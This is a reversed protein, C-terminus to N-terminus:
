CSQQSFARNITKEIANRKKPYSNAVVQNNWKEEFNEKFFKIMNRDNTWLACSLGSETVREMVIYLEENDFIQYSMPIKKYVLKAAFDGTKPKIKELIRKVVNEDNPKEIVIRIRADRKGLVRLNERLNEQMRTLLESTTVLDYETRTKEFSLHMTNALEANSALPIFWREQTNWITQTEKIEDTLKKLEDKLRSIKNKAKQTEITVLHKLATKVPIAKIVTPKGLTKTILGMKELKPFIKYVDQRHLHTAESVNRASTPGSQVINLYVKAQNVTLGFDSLQKIVDYQQQM